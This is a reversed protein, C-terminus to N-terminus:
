HKREWVAIQCHDYDIGGRKYLIQLRDFDRGHACYIDMSTKFDKVDEIKDFDSEM